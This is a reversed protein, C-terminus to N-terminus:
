LITYYTFVYGLFLGEGVKVGIPSLAGDIDRRVHATTGVPITKVARMQEVGPRPSWANMLRQYFHFNM